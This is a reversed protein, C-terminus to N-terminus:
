KLYEPPVPTSDSLESIVQWKGEKRYLTLTGMSDGDEPKKGPRMLFTITATNSGVFQISAEEFLAIANKIVLARDEDSLKRAKLSEAIGALFSRSEKEDRAKIAGDRVVYLPSRTVKQYEDGDGFVSAIYYRFGAQRIQDEIVEGSKKKQAWAATALALGLALLVVGRRYLKM